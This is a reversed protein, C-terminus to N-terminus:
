GTGGDGGGEGEGGNDDNDDDNDDKDGGGVLGAFEALEDAFVSVAECAFVAAVPTESCIAVCLGLTIDNFVDRGKM